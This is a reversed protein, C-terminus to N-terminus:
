SLKPLSGNHRAHILRGYTQVEGIMGPMRPMHRALKNLTSTVDQHLGSHKAFKPLQHSIRLISHLLFDRLVFCLRALHSFDLVGPMYISPFLGSRLKM